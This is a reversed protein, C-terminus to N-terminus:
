KSDTNIHEDDEDDLIFMLVIYVFIAFAGGIAAVLFLLRIITVDVGSWKSIGACIGAIKGNKGDAKLTNSM